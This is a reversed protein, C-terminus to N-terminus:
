VGKIGNGREAQCVANARHTCRNMLLHVKGAEDRTMIVSQQGIRALRYDGPQPIESAHGVYVWGQHFIAFFWTFEQPWM